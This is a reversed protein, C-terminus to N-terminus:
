HDRASMFNKIEIKSNVSFILARHACLVFILKILLYMDVAIFIELNV